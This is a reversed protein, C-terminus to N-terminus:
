RMRSNVLIFNQMKVDIRLNDKEKKLLDNQELAEELNKKLEEMDM